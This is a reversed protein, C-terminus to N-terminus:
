VFCVVTGIRKGVITGVNSIFLGDKGIEVLDFWRGNNM